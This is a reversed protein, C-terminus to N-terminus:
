RAREVFEFFQFPRHSVCQHSYPLTPYPFPKGNWVYDEEVIGRRMAGGERKEERREGIKEWVMLNSAECGLKYIYGSLGLEEGRRELVVRVLINWLLFCYFIGFFSM